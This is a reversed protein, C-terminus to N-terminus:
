YTDLSIGLYSRLEWNPIVHGGAGPAFCRRSKSKARELVAGRRLRGREAVPLALGGRERWVTQGRIVENGRLSDAACDADCLAALRM